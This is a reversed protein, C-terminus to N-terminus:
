IALNGEAGARRQHAMMMAVIKRHQFEEGAAKWVQMKGLLQQRALVIVVWLM